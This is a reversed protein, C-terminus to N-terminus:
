NQAMLDRVETLEPIAATAGEKTVALAGAALAFRLADLPLDGRDLGAILYGAFTDGAGTTDIPTVQPSPLDVVTGAKLDHWTAGNAGKTVAVGEVQLATIDCELAACLQAAEVENLLLISVFPLVAKVAEADFPAASYVVRMGKSKAIRAAEPQCNTENQLVLFDSELACALMDSISAVSHQGNAGTLIVICNEGNDDVMIQARGTPGPVRSIGSVDVGYASLQGTVAEGDDGVCGIHMVKAGSKALAVSQNAGKGGLGSMNSTATLTEGPKPLHPVRLVDDINISGLNFVAM